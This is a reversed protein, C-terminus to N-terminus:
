RRDLVTGHFLPPPLARPVKVAPNYERERGDKARHFAHLWRGYRSRTLVIQGGSRRLERLAWLFYNSPGDEPWTRALRVGWRLGVFMWITWAVAAAYRALRRMM